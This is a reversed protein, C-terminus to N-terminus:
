KLSSENAPTGVAAKSKGEGEGQGQSGRKKSGQRIHSDIAEFVKAQDAQTVPCAVQRLLVKLSKANIRTHHPGNRRFWSLIMSLAKRVSDRLHLRFPNKGPEASQPRADESGYQRLTDRRLQRFHRVFRSDDSVQGLITARLRKKLFINLYKPQKISPKHQKKAIRRTRVKKDIQVSSAISPFLEAVAQSDPGAASLTDAWFMRNIDRNSLDRDRHRFRGNAVEFRQELFWERFCARLIRNMVTETLGSENYNSFRPCRSLLEATRRACGVYQSLQNFDADSVLDRKNLYIFLLLRESSILSDIDDATVPESALVKVIADILDNSFSAM